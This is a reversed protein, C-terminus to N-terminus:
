KDKLLSALRSLEKRMEPLHPISATTRLYDKIKQLPYGGYDGPETIDKSVASLGGLRTKSAVSVHDTISTRGGSLVHDGLHSSGALGFGYALICNKGVSANHGIHVYNDTKTGDGILTSQFTSRDISCHSGLEVHDGIIVNGIQPIRIAEGKENHAFGYGESGITTHPHISCDSGIRCNHMVVVHPHLHTRAGIQVKPELVVHAGIISEEGITVDDGIVAYPGISCTSHVKASKSVIATPHIGPSPKMYPPFRGVLHATMKAQAVSLNKVLFVAQKPSPSVHKKQALATVVCSAESALARKLDSEEQAFVLSDAKPHEIPSVGSLARTLPGMSEVVLDSFHKQLDAATPM